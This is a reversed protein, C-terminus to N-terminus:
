RYTRRPRSGARFSPEAHRTATASTSRSAPGSPEVAITDLENIRGAAAIGAQLATVNQTLESIPGMLQFVYLLFAILTSLELLGHHARWAGVALIMIVSLQIGSWAITWVYASVRAARISHV